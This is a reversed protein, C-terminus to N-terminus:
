RSVSIKLNLILIKPPYQLNFARSPVKLPSKIMVEDRMKTKSFLIKSVCIALTANSSNKPITMWLSSLVSQLPWILSLLQIYTTNLKHAIFRNSKSILTVEFLTRLDTKHQINHLNIHMWLLVYMRYLTRGLYMYLLQFKTTMSWTTLSSSELRWSFGRHLGDWSSICYSSVM